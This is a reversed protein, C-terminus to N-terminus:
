SAIESEFRNVGTIGKIQKLRRILSELHDTNNVFIM